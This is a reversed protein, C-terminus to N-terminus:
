RAGRVTEVSDKLSFAKRAGGTCSQACDIAAVDAATRLRLRMALQELANSVRHRAETPDLEVGGAATRPLWVDLLFLAGLVHPCGMSALVPRLAYDIALLHALTGGVGMPLVVKGDLGSQPVLDLFAKMLGSYAAKYIPTVLVVGDAREVLRLAADVAPDETRAGLVSEAPLERIDLREVACGKAALEEGILRALAATRSAPAPSGSVIAILPM